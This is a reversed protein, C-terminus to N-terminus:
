KFRVQWYKYGLTIAITAAFCSIIFLYPYCCMWETGALERIAIMPIRQYIYLPFLNIGSWCLFANETKLKMTLLVIVLAFALSKLNHTFGHLAPLKLLHLALFVIIGCIMVAWYHKRFFSMTQDKYVSFLLGVLYCLMTDFWCSPRRFSLMLMGAFIMVSIFFVASQNSKKFLRFGVYTVMYCYLIVFIYWNSNGVSRWAILSLLIRRLDLHIGLALDLLVFIVVAIDFNLLVTLIRKKPFSKLYGEGKQKVSEMVGYGSYFLFMVVILQGFESRIRMGLQDITSSFDYGSGRLELMSHSLFVMLIFLGKVANCQEKGLFDDYFAGKKSIKAGVLLLSFLIVYFILM